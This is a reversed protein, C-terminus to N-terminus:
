TLCRGWWLRRLIFVKVTRIVANRMMHSRGNGVKKEMRCNSPVKKETRNDFYSVLHWLNVSNVFVIIIALMELSVSRSGGGGGGGSM